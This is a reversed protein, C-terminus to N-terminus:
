PSLYGESSNLTFSGTYQTSSTTPDSGNTTYYIKAGQTSCTISVQVSGFYTGAAPKISPSSLGAEGVTVTVKTARVQNTAANFVISSEGGTWTGIKGQIDYDGVNVTFCGPGYQASGEATCEFVIKTITSTTSSVTLNKSKYFRYQTDTVTGNEIDLKVGDKEIYFAGASGNFTGKDVAPDFTIEVAWAATALVCMTLFTFLKRM